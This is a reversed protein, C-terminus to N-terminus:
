KVKFVIQDDVLIEIEKVGRSTPEKSYNYFVMGSFQIPTDFTFLLTNFEHANQGEGFSPNSANIKMQESSSNMFPALWMNRDDLTINKGNM